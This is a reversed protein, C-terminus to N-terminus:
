EAELLRKLQALEQHLTARQADLAGELQELPVPPAHLVFSYICTGRTTETVRSHAVGVAGDPFALEWDVTGADEHSSTRLAIDVAGSPTRLSARTDDARQFAHAWQPLNRPESVFGFVAARTARIEIGQIDFTRMTTAEREFCLHEM